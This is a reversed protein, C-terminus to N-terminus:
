ESRCKKREPKRERKETRIFPRRGHFNHLIINIMTARSRLSIIIEVAESRVGEVLSRQATAPRAALVEKSEEEAPRRDPRPARLSAVSAGHSLRIRLLSARNSRFTAEKRRETRVENGARRRVRSLPHWRNRPSAVAGSLTQPRLYTLYADCKRCCFPWISAFRHQRAM